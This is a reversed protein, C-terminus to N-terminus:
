WAHMWWGFGFIAGLIAGVIMLILWVIIVAPIAALSAKIFFMVLRGFPVDIDTLITRQESPLRQESPVTGQTSM